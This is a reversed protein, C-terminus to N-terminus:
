NYVVVENSTHTASKGGPTTGTVTGYNYWAGKAIIKHECTYITTEGPNLEAAGPGGKINECRTDTFKSLTLPVVGTNKVLLEYLVTEGLKVFLPSPTFGKGSGEIEQLKKITFLPKEEGKEVKSVEVKVVVENSTKKGVGDSGEVTAVNTYKGKETLKHECKWTTSEGAKLEAAGGTIKTCKPDSFGTLKLPVNGENTVIIEYFVTEGIMGTLESKTFVGTIRQLKEINLVPSKVKVVVENSEMSGAEENAEITAVNKYTRNETIKEECTWISSEGPKLETAGAKINTCGPDKFNSFKLPVEGTNKVVIEYHITEGVSGTLEETTFTGALKQLKEITYTAENITPRPPEVEFETTVTTGPAEELSAEIFARGSACSEGALVVVFANGDDDLQLGKIEDTERAIEVGDPGVWVLKPAYKCRNYLSTKINVMEEAFEPSFEVHIITAVDSNVDSEVARAPEAFVGPPTKTPPKVLFETTATPDPAAELDAVILTEGPACEPGGWLVAVANGDDDLKVKFSSGKVPEFPLVESWVLEGKCRNYLENDSITVEKGAYVPECEVEVIDALSSATTKEGAEVFSPLSHVVCIRKKGAAPVSASAAPAFVCTVVLWAAILYLTALRSRHGPSQRGQRSARRVTQGGQKLLEM